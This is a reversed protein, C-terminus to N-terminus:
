LKPNMVWQPLMGLETDTLAKGNLRTAILLYTAAKDYESGKLAEKAQQILMRVQGYKIINDTHRNM